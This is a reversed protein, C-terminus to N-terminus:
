DRYPNPDTYYAARDDAKRIAKQLRGVHRGWEFWADNDRPDPRHQNEIFAQLRTYLWNSVVNWADADEYQWTAPKRYVFERDLMWGTDYEWGNRYFDYALRSRAGCTDALRKMRTYRKWQDASMGHTDADIEAVMIARLLANETRLWKRHSFVPRPAM